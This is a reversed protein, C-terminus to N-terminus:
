VFAKVCVPGYGALVSKAAKLPRNCNMCRGYRIGLEVAREKTMRHEPRIDYIAGPAYEYDFAVVDDAGNVRRATNLEVLKKAYLRTKARNPKVVYVQGNLEYVGPTLERHVERPQPRSQWYDIERSVTARTLEGTQFLRHLREVREDANEPWYDCRRERVLRTLYNFQRETVGHALAADLPGLTTTDLTSTM